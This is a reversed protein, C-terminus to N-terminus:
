VKTTEMTHEWLKAAVEKDGSYQVGPIINGKNDVRYSGPTRANTLMGHWLYQRLIRSDRTFGTAKFARVLAKFPLKDPLKRAQLGLAGVSFPTMRSKLQIHDPDPSAIERHMNRPKSEVRFNDRVDLTEDRRDEAPRRDRMPFAGLARFRAAPRLTGQGFQPVSVPM